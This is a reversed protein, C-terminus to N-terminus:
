VEVAEFRMYTAAAAKSGPMFQFVIDEHEGYELEASEYFNWTKAGQMWNTEVQSGSQILPFSSDPNSGVYARFKVRKGSSNNNLRMSFYYQMGYNGLNNFGSNTCYASGGQCLDIATMENANYTNCDCLWYYYSNNMSAFCNASNLTIDTSLFYSDGSGSYVPVDSGVYVLDCPIANGDINYKNVFVYVTVICTGTTEFRCLAEFFRYSVTEEMIWTSGAPAISYRTSPDNAFFREYTLGQVDYGNSSNFGNNRKTITISNSNPNYIQIGFKVTGGFSSSPNKEYSAYVQANTTTVTVQNLCRGNDGLHEPRFSEPSNCYILTQNGERTFNLSTAYQQAVSTINQNTTNGSGPKIYM